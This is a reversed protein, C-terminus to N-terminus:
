ISSLAIDKRPPPSTTCDCLPHRGRGPERHAHGRRDSASATANSSGKIRENLTRPPHPARRGSRPLAEIRAIADNMAREQIRHHSLSPSMASGPAPEKQLSAEISINLRGPHAHHRGAGRGISPAMTSLLRDARRWPPGGLDSLAHPPLRSPPGTERPGLDPGSWTWSIRSWRSATARAPVAGSYLSPGIADGKILVANMVGMVSALLQSPSSPRTSRLEITTGQEPSASTSSGNASRDAYRHPVPSGPSGEHLGTSSSRSVSPSRPWITLKHAADIGRCRARIPRRTASASPRACSEPSIAGANQMESLIFNGNGNIIGCLM